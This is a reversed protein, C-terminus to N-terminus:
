FFTPKLGSNRGGLKHRSRISVWRPVMCISTEVAQSRPHRMRVSLGSYADVPFCCQAEGDLDRFNIHSRPRRLPM